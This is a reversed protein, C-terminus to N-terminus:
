ILLERVDTLSVVSSYLSQTYRFACLNSSSVSLFHVLRLAGILDVANRICLFLLQCDILFGMIELSFLTM